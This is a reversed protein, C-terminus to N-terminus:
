RRLKMAPAEYKKVTFKASRRECTLNSHTGTWGSQWRDRGAPQRDNRLGYCPSFFRQQPRRVCEFRREGHTDGGALWKRRQRRNRGALLQRRQRRQPHRFGGQLFRHALLTDAAGFEGAPQTPVRRLDTPHEIQTM